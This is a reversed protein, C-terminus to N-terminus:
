AYYCPYALDRLREFPSREVLIEDNAWFCDIDFITYWSRPVGRFTLHDPKHCAEDTPRWGPRNVLAHQQRKTNNPIYRNHLM